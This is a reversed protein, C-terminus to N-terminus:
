LKIGIIKNIRCVRSDATAGDSGEQTRFGTVCNWTQGSCGSYIAVNHLWNGTPVAVSLDCTAIFNNNRTLLWSPVEQYRSVPMQDPYEYLSSYTPSSIIGIRDYASVPETLAFSSTDQSPRGSYLLVKKTPTVNSQNYNVGIVSEIANYWGGATCAYSNQTGTVNFKMVWNTTNCATKQSCSRQLSGAGTITLNGWRTNQLNIISRTKPDFEYCFFPQARSEIVNWSTTNILATSGFNYGAYNVKIRDYATPSSSLTINGNGAGGANSYLITEKYAM